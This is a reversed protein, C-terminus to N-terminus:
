RSYTWMYWVDSRAAEKNEQFFLFSFFAAEQESVLYLITLMSTFAHLLFSVPSMVDPWRDPCGSNTAM